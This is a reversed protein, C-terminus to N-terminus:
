NLQSVLPQFFTSGLTLASQCDGRLGLNQLRCLSLSWFQLAAFNFVCSLILARRFLRSNTQSLYNLHLSPESSMRFQIVIEKPWMGYIIGM